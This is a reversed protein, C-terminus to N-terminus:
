SLPTRCFELMDTLTQEITYRPEWGVATRLKSADAVRLAQYRSLIPVARGAGPSREAEELFSLRHVRLDAGPVHRPGLEFM